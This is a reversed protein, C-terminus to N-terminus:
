LLYVHVSVDDYGAIKGRLLLRQCKQLAKGPLLGPDLDAHLQEIGLTRGDDPFDLRPAILDKQIQLEVVNGVGYLASHADQAGQVHVHHVEMGRAGRLHHAGGHLAQGPGVAGPRDQQRHRLQGGGVLFGQMPLQQDARGHRLGHGVVGFVGLCRPQVAHDARRQFRSQDLLGAARVEQRHGGAHAECVAFLSILLADHGGRVGSGRARVVDDHAPGDGAGGIRRRGILAGAPLEADMGDRPRQQVDARHEQPGVLGKGPGGADM